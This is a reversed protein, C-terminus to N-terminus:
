ISTSGQSPARWGQVLGELVKSGESYTAKISLLRDNYATIVIKRINLKGGLFEDSLQM